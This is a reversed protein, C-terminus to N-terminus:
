METIINIKTEISRRVGGGGERRKGTERGGGWSLGIVARTTEYAVAFTTTTLRSRAYAYVGHTRGNRNYYGNRMPMVHVRGEKCACACLDRGVRM